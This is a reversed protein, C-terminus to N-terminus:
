VSSPQFSFIGLSLWRQAGSVTIGFFLSIDLVFLVFFLFSTNKLDKSLIYSIFYALFYGFIGTLFHNIYSIRFIKKTHKKNFFKFYNSFHSSNFASTLLSIKSFNNKKFFGRKSLLSIGRNM